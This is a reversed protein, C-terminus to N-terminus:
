FKDQGDAKCTPHSWESTEGRRWRAGKRFAGRFCSGTKTWSIQQSIPECTAKTSPSCTTQAVRRTALQFKHSGKRGPWAHAGESDGAM